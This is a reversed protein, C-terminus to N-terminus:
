YGSAAMAARLTAFTSCCAKRGASHRTLWACPRSGGAASRALRCARMGSFYDECSPTGGLSSNPTGRTSRPVTGPPGSAPALPFLSREERHMHRKVAKGNYRLPSPLDAVPRASAVANSLMVRLAQLERSAGRHKDRVHELVAVLHDSRSDFIRLLYVDENAHHSQEVFREFYDFNPAFFGADIQASSEAAAAAREAGTLLRCLKAHDMSIGQFLRM